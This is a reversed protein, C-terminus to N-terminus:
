EGVAMRMPLKDILFATPSQLCCSTAMGKDDRDLLVPDGDGDKWPPDRCASKPHCQREGSKQFVPSFSNSQLIRLGSTPYAAGM